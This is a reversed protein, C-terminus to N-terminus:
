THRSHGSLSCFLIDYCFLYDLLKKGEMWPEDHGKIIQVVNKSDKKSTHNSIEADSRTQIEKFLIVRWQTNKQRWLFSLFNFHYSNFFFQFGDQFIWWNVKNVNLACSVLSVACLQASSIQQIQWKSLKSVTSLKNLAGPQLKYVFSLFSVSCLPGFLSYLRFWALDPARKYSVQKLTPPTSFLGTAEVFQTCWRVSNLFLFLFCVSFM